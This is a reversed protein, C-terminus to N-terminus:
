STAEQGDSRGRDRYALVRVKEVTVMGDAVMWGTKYGAALGMAPWRGAAGGVAILLVKLVGSPM